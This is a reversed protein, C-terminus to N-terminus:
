LEIHQENEKNSDEESENSDYTSSQKIDLNEETLEKEQKPGHPPDMVRALDKLADRPLMLLDEKTLHDKEHVSKVLRDFAVRPGPGEDDEDMSLNWFKEFIDFTVKDTKYKKLGTLLTQRLMEVNMYGMEIVDDGKKYTWHVHVKDLTVVSNLDVEDCGKPDFNNSIDNTFLM